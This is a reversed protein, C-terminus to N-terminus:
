HKEMYTKGFTFLETCNPPVITSIGAIEYEEEFCFSGDFTAQVDSLILLVDTTGKVTFNGFKDVPKIRFKSENAQRSALKIRQNVANKFILDGDYHRERASVDLTFKWRLTM